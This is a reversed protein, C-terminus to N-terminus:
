VTEAAKLLHGVDKLILGLIYDASGQFKQQSLGIANVIKRPIKVIKRVTSGTRQFFAIERFSVLSFNVAKCAQKIIAIVSNKFAQRTM